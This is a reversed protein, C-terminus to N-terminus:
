TFHVQVWSAVNVDSFYSNICKMLFDFFNSMIILMYIFLETILNFDSTHTRFTCSFMFNCYFTCRRWILTFWTVHISASLWSSTKVHSAIKVFALYIYEATIFDSIANLANIQYWCSFFFSSNFLSHLNSVNCFWVKCWTVFINLLTLMSVKFAFIYVLKNCTWKFMSCFLIVNCLQILLWICFILYAHLSIHMWKILILQMM